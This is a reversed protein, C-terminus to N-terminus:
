GPISKFLKEVEATLEDQTTAKRWKDRPKLTIFFDTEEPGMPDTAVEATGCRAWVYEVENPFAELLMQEMLSNSRMAEEHSIGPARRINVVMAGESLKPVFESELSRAILVGGLVLVATIGLLAVSYRLSLRLLPAYMWRFVRV